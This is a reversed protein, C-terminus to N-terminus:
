RPIPKGLPYSFKVKPSPRYTPDYSDGSLGSRHRDYSKIQDKAGQAMGIQGGIDLCHIHPDFGQSPTRYWAALGAEKLCLVLHKRQNETMHWTRLDGAGAGGHTGASAEYHSWSGQTPILSVGPYKQQMKKEAWRLANRHRATFQEGRWWVKDYAKEAM